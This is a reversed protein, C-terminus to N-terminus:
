NIVKGELEVTAVAMFSRLKQRGTYGLM